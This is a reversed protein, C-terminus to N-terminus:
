HPCVLTMFWGHSPITLKYWRYFHHHSSSPASPMTKVVNNATNYPTTLTPFFTPNKTTGFQPKNPSFRTRSQFYNKSISLRNVFKTLNYFCSKRQSVTPKCIQNTTETRSLNVRTINDPASASVTRVRRRGSFGPVLGCRLSRANSWM